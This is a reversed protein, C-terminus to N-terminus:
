AHCADRKWRQARARGKRRRALTVRIAQRRSRKAVLWRAGAAAERLRRAALAARMEDWAVVAERAEALAPTYWPQDRYRAVIELAPRGSHRGKQEAHVSYLAVVRPVSLGPQEGLLRVWLDLDEASRQSARYGQAKLFTERRVIVGSAAIFNEPFILPAPSSLVVPGPDLPGGYAVARDDGDVAMSAGAVFAYGARLPWVTDLMHPLWRDDSDLPAIWPQGTAEVGTNRAAAAGRNATHRIVRAGAQEAVDATADTSADDVVIVEAPPLPRQRLASDVARGVWEARNHAAIIVAVPLTGVNGAM